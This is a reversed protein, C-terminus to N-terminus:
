IVTPRVEKRKKLFLLVYIYIFSIFSLATDRM